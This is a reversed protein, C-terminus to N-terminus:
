KLSKIATDIANNLEKSATFPRNLELENIAESETM